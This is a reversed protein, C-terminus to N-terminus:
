TPTTSVFADPIADMQNLTEQTEWPMLDDLCWGQLVVGGRRESLAEYGIWVGTKLCSAYLALYSQYLARGAEIKDQSLIARGTQYPPFNESLLFAWTDRKEGTSENYLDLDFAAQMHYKMQSSYRSWIGPAASRTSKLDGLCEDFETGGKPVCDILCQVPVVLRSSLRDADDHWEGSVHVQRQSERLFQGLITDGYLMTGARQAEEMEERKIVEIGMEEKAARWAKCSNSNGNWPKTPDDPYTDPRVAYHTERLHPMLVVTDLLSGWTKSPSDPASYGAKWRAPCASFEKLMSPSVIMRPDGRELKGDHYARPDVGSGTIKCNQFSM